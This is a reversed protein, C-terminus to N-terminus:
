KVPNVEPAAAAAPAKYGTEVALYAIVDIRDKPDKYGAFTMKTGPLFTRPNALWSDLHHLDWEFGAAKVADSYNFGAVSGAKRGFVGHLNPGTMNPGGAGISHCSKCVGFKAQGDALDATHYPAPLAALTAAKEAATPEPAAAEGSANTSAPKGCGALAVALGAAAWALGATRM